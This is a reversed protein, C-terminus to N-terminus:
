QLRPAEAGGMIKALVEPDMSDITRAFEADSMKTLAEMTMVGAPAGGADSLSTSADKGSQIDKLVQSPSPKGNTPVVGNQRQQPAPQQEQTPKQYGSLKALRYVYAAPSERRALAQKVVSNEESAIARNIVDVEQPALTVGPETIDKGFENYAHQRMRMQMLFTYADGFSPEAAAFNRADQEYTQRLNNEQAQSTIQQSTGDQQKRLEAVEAKLHKMFGIPDDDENPIAPPEAETKPAATKTNIAQVLLSLREELKTRATRESQLDTNLREAKAAEKAILRRHKEFNINKQAQTLPKGDKGTQPATPEDDDEGDDADPTAVQRQLEGERRQSPPTEDKSGGDPVIEAQVEGGQDADRMKEFEAQDAASLGSLNDSSDNADIVHTDSM